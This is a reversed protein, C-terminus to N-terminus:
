PGVVEVPASLIVSTGEGPASWIRARGGVATMREVVSGRLGLRDGAVASPDFGTGKDTIMITITGPDAIIEV